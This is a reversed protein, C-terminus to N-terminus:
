SQSIKKKKVFEIIKELPRGIIAHDGNIIIPREILIPNQHLIKLWQSGTIKKGEYNEKYLSEKKRVIDEPKVGIMKVIEKLQAVTPTDVLYEITEIKDNSNDKILQM